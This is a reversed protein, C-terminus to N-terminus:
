MGTGCSLMWTWGAMMAGALHGTMQNVVYSLKM